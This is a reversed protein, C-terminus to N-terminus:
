PTKLVGNVWIGSVNAVLNASSNGIQLSSANITTQTNAAANNIVISTTNITVNGIVIKPVVVFQGNAYYTYLNLDSPDLSQFLFSGNGSTDIIM